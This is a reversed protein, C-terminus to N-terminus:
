HQGGGVAHKGRYGHHVCKGSQGELETRDLFHRSRGTAPGLDPSNHGHVIGGAPELAVGPERSSSAGGGSRGRRGAVDRDRGSSGDNRIDAGHHEREPRLGAGGDARSDGRSSPQSFGNVVEGFHMRNFGASPTTIQVQLASVVQPPTTSPGPPQSTDVVSFTTRASAQGGQRDVASLELQHAGTGLATIAVSAGVGASITGDVTWRLSESSLVEGAASATGIAAVPVGLAFQAGPPPQLIAVQITAMWTRAVSFGGTVARNGPDTSLEYGLEALDSQTAPDVGARFWVMHVTARPEAPLTASALFRGQGTTAPFSGLSQGQLDFVESGTVLAEGTTAHSLTASLTQGTANYVAFRLGRDTWLAPAPSTTWGSEWSTLVRQPNGALVRDVRLLGSVPLALTAIGSQWRSNRAVVSIVQEGPSAFSTVVSAGEGLSGQRDSNWVFTQTLPDQASLNTVVAEFVMSRGALPRTNGAPARIEVVPAPRPSVTLISTAAATMGHSSTVTLTLRHTGDSLTRMDVYSGTGLYGDRDSSWRLAPEPLQGDLVDYGGGQLAVSDAAQVTSGTGPSWITAQPVPPLVSVTLSAESTRNASDHAVARLVLGTTIEMPTWSQSLGAGLERGAGDLWRVSWWSLEGDSDSFGQARMTIQQGYSLIAGRAPFVIEVRPPATSAPDVVAVPFTLRGTVGRSTSAQVEVGHVGPPGTVTATVNNSTSAPTFGDSAWRLRGSPVQGEIVDTAYAILSLPQGVSLRWGLTPSAAWISPPPAQSLPLVQITVTQTTSKGHSNVATLRLSWQGPNLLTSGPSAGVGIVTGATTTWMLAADQLSGDLFDDAAGILSIPVTEYYTWSPQPRTVYVTPAPIHAADEVQITVTTAVTRGWADTARLSYSHTGAAPSTTVRTGSGVTSNGDQSWSLNQAALPFNLADSGGGELVIPVTEFYRYWPWPRSIWVRPPGLDAGDVLTIQRTAQATTGRSNTAVLTVVAPGVEAPATTVLPNGAGVFGQRDTSWRLSEAPMWGDRSDVAWAWYSISQRTYFTAGDGPTGITLSPPPAPVIEIAITTVGSTGFSNTGTVSLVHPGLPLTTVTMYIGSGLRGSRNSSWVMGSDPLSGDHPDWGHAYLVLSDGKVVSQGPSPQHVNLQPTPPLISVTCTAVSLRNASDHALVRIVFSSTVQMPTYSALLGAGLNTGAGDEWHTNWWGLDGDLDSFGTARLNVTQGYVLRAGDIPSLIAIRPSATSAPDLVCVQATAIGTTGRSTVARAGVVHYGPPGTVVVTIGNGTVAPTFADSAWSIRSSPLQGEAIDTAYAVLTLQQGVNLRSGWGVTAMWVTPPPVQSLPRVQITATQTASKGHSNTATLQIGWEGAPLVTSTQSVASALVTGTTTAWSLASDPLRGDLYDDAWGYLSLPVTEYYTLAPAPRYITLSPAPISSAAEVAVTVTTAVTRGWADTGRLSFDHTGAVASTALTTGSGISPGGDVNWSLDRGSLAFNLADLGYGELVLPVGEFQRSWPWPRTIGVRPQALQNGDLITLARTTEATSGRSNTVRVTLVSGGVEAPATTLLPNGTGLFGQRDTFWRISSAAMWGDRSDVAWASYSVPQRSYFQTGDSPAAVTITPPPAPVITLRISTTNTTGNADTASLLISREGTSAFTHWMSLVTGFPCVTEDGWILSSGPLPNGSDDLATGSFYVSDGVVASTGSTPSTITMSPAAEVAACGFVFFGALFLGLLSKGQLRMVGGKKPM